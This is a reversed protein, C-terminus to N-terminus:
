VADRALKLKSRKTVNYYVERTNRKLFRCYVKGSINGDWNRYEGKEEKLKASAVKRARSRRRRLNERKRVTNKRKTKKKRGNKKEPM